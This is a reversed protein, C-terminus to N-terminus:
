LCLGVYKHCFSSYVHQMHTNKHTWEYVPKRMLVWDNFNQSSSELLNLIRIFCQNVSLKCRQFGVLLYMIRVRTAAKTLINILQSHHTMPALISLFVDHFHSYTNRSPIESIIDMNLVFKERARPVFLFFCCCFFWVFSMWVCGNLDSWLASHKQKTAASNFFYLASFQKNHLWMRACHQHEWGSHM